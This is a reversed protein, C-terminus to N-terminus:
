QCHICKMLLIAIYFPHIVCFHTRVKVQLFKNMPEYWQLLVVGNPLAGCLYKHNNYPNRVTFSSNVHIIVLRRLLTIWDPSMIKMKCLYCHLDNDSCLSKEYHSAYMVDHASLTNERLIGFLCAYQVM